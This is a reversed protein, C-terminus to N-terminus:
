LHHYLKNNLYIKNNFKILIQKYNNKNLKHLKFFKNNQKEKFKLNYNKHLKHNIIHFKVMLLNIIQFNKIVKLYQKQNILHKM